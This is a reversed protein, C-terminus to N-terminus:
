AVKEAYRQLALVLSSAQEIILSKLGYRQSKPCQGVIIKKYLSEPVHCRPTASRPCSFCRAHARVCARASIPLFVSAGESERERVQNLYTYMHQELTERPMRGADCTRDHKEKSVYIAEITDQCVVSPLLNNAQPRSRVHSSVEWGM